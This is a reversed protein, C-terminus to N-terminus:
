KKSFVRGVLYIATAVTMGTISPIGWSILNAAIAGFVVGLVAFWDVNKMVKSTDSYCKRDM